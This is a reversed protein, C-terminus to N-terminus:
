RGEELIREIGEADKQGFGTQAQVLWWAMTTIAKEIRDLREALQDATLDPSEPVPEYGNEQEYSALYDEFAHKLSYLDSALIEVPEDNARLGDVVPAVVAGIWFALRGRRDNKSPM